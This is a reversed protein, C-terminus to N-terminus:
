SLYFRFEPTIGVGQFVTEFSTYGSYFVGLQASTTTSLAREYFVSATRLLPSILNIKVVNPRTTMVVEPQQGHLLLPALLIISIVLTKIFNKM